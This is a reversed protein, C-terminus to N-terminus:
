GVRWGTRSRSPGWGESPPHHPSTPPVESPARARCLPQQEDPQIRLHTRSPSSLNHLITQARGGGLVSGVGAAQIRTARLQTVRPSVGAAPVSLVGLCSGRTYDLAQLRFSVQDPEFFLNDRGDDQGHARRVGVRGLCTRTVHATWQLHVAHLKPALGCWGPWKLLRAVWSM